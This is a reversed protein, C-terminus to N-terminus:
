RMPLHLIRPDRHGIDCARRLLGGRHVSPLNPVNRRTGGRLRQLGNGFVAGSVNRLFQGDVPQPLYVPLKLLGPMAGPSSLKNSAALSAFM